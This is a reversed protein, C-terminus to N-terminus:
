VAVERLEPPLWNAAAQRNRAHLAEQKNRFPTLKPKKVASASRLAQEQSQLFIMKDLLTKEWQVQTRQVEPRDFAWYVRVDALAREFLGADKGALEYHQQCLKARSVFQESPQWDTPLTFSSSKGGGAGPDGGAQKSTYPYIPYITLEASQPRNLDGQGRVDLNNINLDFYDSLKATVEEPLKTTLKKQACQLADRNQKFILFEVQLSDGKKTVLKILGLQEIRRVQNRIYAIRQTRSEGWADGTGAYGQRSPEYAREYLGGWSLRSKLGAVGTERDMCRRLLGFLYAQLHTLCEGGEDGYIIAEEEPLLAATYGRAMNSGKRFRVM